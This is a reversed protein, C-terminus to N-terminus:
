NNIETDTWAATDLLKKLVIQTHFRKNNYQNIFVFLGPNYPLSIIFAPKDNADHVAYRFDREYIFSEVDTNLIMLNSNTFRFLLDLRQKGIDSLSAYYSLFGQRSRLSDEEESDFFNDETLTLVTDRTYPSIKVMEVIQELQDNNFSYNNLTTDNLTM